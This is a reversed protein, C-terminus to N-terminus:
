SERSPAWCRRRNSGGIASVLACITGRSAACSQLVSILVSRMRRPRRRLAEIFRKELESDFMANPTVVEGVSSVRKLKDQYGVIEKLLLTATRRSVRDREFSNRYRYVCRYCGDAESDTNCGCSSRLWRWSCCEFIPQPDRMLDKLYGTGGPVADYIVLYQRPNDQGDAIRVDRAVRLHEVAGAFRRELGMQVAAVFSHVRTEADGFAAEPLYLRIGESNFERYLFVCEASPTAADRPRACYIAHNKWHDAQKRRRQLTGCEVCITFGRRRQDDGAIMMNQGDSAREGFNVERFGIRDIFEFAFPYEERDVAWASTIANPAIDILAQRVYFRRERDDTDDGVRSKSDM